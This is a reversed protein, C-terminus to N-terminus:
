GAAFRALWCLGVASSLAGTAGVIFRAYAPTRAARSFATSALWGALAMSLVIGAGFVLARALAVAVTGAVVIPLAAVLARAGSFGLLGGVAWALHPHAHAAHPRGGLHIHLHTHEHQQHRHEHTHPHEHMILRSRLLEALIWGGLFVLVVGGAQELSRQWHEPLGRGLTWAAGALLILTAVHGLGFRLGLWALERPPVRRGAGRGVLAAIAALHDPGLGHLLGAGFLALLILVNDM